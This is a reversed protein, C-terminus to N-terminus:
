PLPRKTISLMTFSTRRAPEGGSLGRSRCPAVVCRALLLRTRHEKRQRAAEGDVLRRPPAAALPEQDVLQHLLEAAVGPLPDLGLDPERGEYEKHYYNASSIM